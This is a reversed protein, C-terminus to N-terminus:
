PSWGAPGSWQGSPTALLRAIRQAAPEGTRQQYLQVAENGPQHKGPQAAHWLHVIPLHAYPWVRRTAAREWLDNDEGGWGIFSEDMGGIEDYARRTIAVSGGAELNQVIAEPAHGLLGAQKAFYASTHAAELYFIFRKLNVVEFGAEVRDLINAAYDAPVLMDNDHLVFVDSRAERVGLNFTWSRCYPMGAAPSPVYVHRVWSPLVGALRPQEDQEVVICEVPLSQGAISELTARLHPARAAGRHGIVFSLRPPATPDAPAVRLVFPHDALARQMLEIGLKPLQKPANLDSTWAWDCRLGPHGAVAELREHRNCLSLYETGRGALASRYRGRDRVM